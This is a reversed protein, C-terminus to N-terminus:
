DIEYIWECEGDPTVFYASAHELSKYGAITILWGWRSLKELLSKRDKEDSTEVRARLEESHELSTYTINLPIVETPYKGEFRTGLIKTSLIRYAEEHTLKPKEGIVPFAGM